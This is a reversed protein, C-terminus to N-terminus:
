RIAKPKKKITLGSILAAIFVMVGGIAEALTPQESLFVYGLITVFLLESTLIVTSANVGTHKFGYLLLKGLFVLCIGFLLTVAVIWGDVTRLLEDGTIAILALSLIVSVSYQYFLLTNRPLDRVTKKLSNSVGDAAGAFVALIFGSGLAIGSWAETFVILGTFALLLFVLRKKTVKEDFFKLGIFFTGILSGAFLILVASAIKLQITALTFLVVVVPFSVAFAGVRLWDKRAVRLSQKKIIIIALLIIVAVASRATVQFYDGYGKELERIMLGFSAYLVAASFLASTSKTKQNM